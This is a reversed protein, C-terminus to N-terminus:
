RWDRDVLVMEKGFLLSSRSWDIFQREDQLAAAEAEEAEAGQRSALADFWAEAHGMYGGVNGGRRARWEDELPTDFRHVQQYCLVGRAVAHSRVLPGHMTRWYGLAGAETLGPLPRLAFFVKRIGTKPRAVIRERQTSVQPYEHAFWAPSAAPNVFRSEDAAMEQLARRGAATLGANCLAQESEFWLESVGDYPAELGGRKAGAQSEVDQANADRHTQVYRLIDLRTQHSAIVPGHVDRWYTNFEAPTMGAKRRIAHVLRIM